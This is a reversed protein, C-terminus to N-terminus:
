AGSGNFYRKPPFMGRRVMEEGCRRRIKVGM